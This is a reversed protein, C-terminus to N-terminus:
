HVDQCFFIGPYEQPLKEFEPAVMHCPDLERSCDMITFFRSGFKGQVAEAIGGM